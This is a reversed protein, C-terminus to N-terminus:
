TKRRFVLYVALAFVTLVAAVAIMVWSYPGAGLIIPIPGILIVAGGSFGGGSGTLPGVVMLLLGVAIMAFAVFLLWTAASHLSVVAGTGSSPMTRAVCDHCFWRASDFCDGCVSRGCSQCVYAAARIGCRQCIPTTMKM